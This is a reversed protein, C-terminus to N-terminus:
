GPLVRGRLVLLRPHALVAPDAIPDADYCALDAPAGDRLGPLGLWSRATWSAAGVAEAVPLGSRVLLDVEATVRGFPLSDTGALVTVGVEHASRVTEQLGDWGDLFWDRAGGPERTRVQEAAGAFAVLTPVLATGQAAMRDLLGPDLHMGHELSDVGAEVAARCGAATQCHAAVRGGAAHVAAVTAALIEPPVPPEDYRWDVVVKCWGDAAAMEAVAAAALGDETVDLGYGPFFRGPTALWRGASRVRPLEPDRAVWDPMRAATGPTRVLLVGADRHEILHRRLLEGDFTDGPKETGPHTHVDVLGPLVWGGDHLLDGGGTRDERLLEGDVVFTRREREPLVIGRIRFVM